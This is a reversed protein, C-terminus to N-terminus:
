RSAEEISIVRLGNGPSAKSSIMLRYPTPSASFRFPVDKEAYTLNVKGSLDLTMSVIYNKQGRTTLIAINGSSIEKGPESYANTIDNFVFNIKDYSSNIIMEGRRITFDLYRVNGPSLDTKAALENLSDITQDIALRDKTNNIKPMIFALVMGILALGILTYLVTEIWVQASNNM